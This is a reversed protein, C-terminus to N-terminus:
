RLLGGRASDSYVLPAQALTHKAAPRIPSGWVQEVIGLPDQHRAVRYVGVLRERHQGIVRLVVAVLEDVDGLRDDVAV